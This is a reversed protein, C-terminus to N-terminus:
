KAVFLFKLIPAELLFDASMKNIESPEAEIEFYQYHGKNQKKIEYALNKVGMDEQKTVNVKSASFHSNVVEAGKAAMEDNADFIVTFEYNRM